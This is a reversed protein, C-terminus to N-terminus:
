LWVSLACYVTMLVITVNAIQAYHPKHLVSQLMEGGRAWVSVSLLNIVACLACAILTNAWLLGTQPLYVAPLTLAMMWAKPNVYQFLAAQMLTMPQATNKNQADPLNGDPNINKPVAGNKWLKVALWLMYLSGIIKLVWNTAPYGLVVAAVGICCLLIMVCFGSAIGVMHPITRKFGFRAGSHLLMLNNPGPTVSTVFAFTAMAFLSTLTYASFVNM